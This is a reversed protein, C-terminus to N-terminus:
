SYPPTFSEIANIELDGPSTCASSPAFARGTSRQDLDEDACRPLVLPSSVGRRCSGARRVSDGLRRVPPLDREGIAPPQSQDRM